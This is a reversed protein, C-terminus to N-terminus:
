GTFLPSAASVSWPLIVDNVQIFEVPGSAPYVNANGNSAGWWIDSFLGKIGKYNHSYAGIPLVPLLGTELDAIANYIVPNYAVTQYNSGNTSSDFNQVSPMVARIGTPEYTSRIMLGAGDGYPGVLNRQALNGSQFCAKATTWDRPSATTTVVANDLGGFWIVFSPFFSHYTVAYFSVPPGAPSFGLGVHIQQTYSTFSNSSNVIGLGDQNFLGGNNTNLHWFGLLVEDLAAVPRDNQTAPAAFAGSPSYYMSFFRPDYPGGANQGVTIAVQPSGASSGLQLIIWVAPPGYGTVCSYISNRLNTSGPTWYNFGNLTPPSINAVGDSSGVCVVQGGGLTLLETALTGLYDAIDKIRGNYDTNNAGNTFVTNNASISWTNMPTPLAM